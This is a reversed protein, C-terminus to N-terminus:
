YVIGEEELRTYLPTFEQKLTNRGQPPYPYDAMNDLVENIKKDANFRLRYVSDCKSLWTSIIDFTDPRSLRRINMLYPALIFKIIYKRYDDLGTDLLKEIWTTTNNKKIGRRNINSLYNYKKANQIAEFQKDLNRIVKAQMWIYFQPLLPKISPRNEDWCRGHVVRVEAEPPIDVIWGDEFKVQNSNLSGPIRLMCNGPSLNNSHCPDAKGDTLHQEEFRLFEISPKYQALKRFREVKELIIALQPNVFHYGNGTWLQTPRADLMKDFNYYTNNAALEFAEVTKFNELDIDGLSLSPAINGNSYNDDITHYGRISCDMFNAVKFQLMAEEESFVKKFKREKGSDTYVYTSIWRGLQWVPMSDDLHRVMLRLGELVKREREILDDIRIGGYTLNVESMM